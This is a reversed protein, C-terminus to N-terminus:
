WQVGKKLWLVCAGHFRFDWSRPSKFHIIGSSRTKDSVLLCTPEPFSIPSDRVEPTPRTPGLQVQRDGDSVLLIAAEPSSMSGKKLDCLFIVSNQHDPGSRLRLRCRHCANEVGSSKEKACSPCCPSFSFRLTLPRSHPNNRDINKPLTAARM